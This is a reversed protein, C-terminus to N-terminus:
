EGNGREGSLRRFRHKIAGAGERRGAWAKEARAGIVHGSGAPRVEAGGRWHGPLLHPITAAGLPDLVPAPLVVPVLM